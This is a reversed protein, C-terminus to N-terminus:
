RKQLTTRITEKVVKLITSSKKIVEKVFQTKVSVDFSLKTSFKVMFISNNMRFVISKMPGLTFLVDDSIFFLLANGRESFHGM